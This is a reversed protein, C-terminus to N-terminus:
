KEVKLENIQKEKEENQKQSENYLLFFNAQKKSIKFPQSQSAASNQEFTGGEVDLGGTKKKQTDHKDLTGLKRNKLETNETKLAAVKAKERHVTGKKAFPVLSKLKKGM